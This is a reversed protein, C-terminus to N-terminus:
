SRPATGQFTLIPAVSGDNEFTVGECVVGNSAGSISSGAPVNVAGRLLATSTFRLIGTNVNLTGTAENTMPLGISFQVAGNNKHIIGHNFTNQKWSNTTSQWNNLNVIGSALNNFTGVTGFQQLNGNEMNWTGANNITGSNNLNPSGSFTTTSGPALDLTANFNGGTWNFTGGEPVHLIATGNITGGTFDVQQATIDQAIDLTSFTPVTFLDLTNISSGAETAFTGSQMQLHELGTITGGSANTFSANIRFISGPGGFAFLGTNTNTGTSNSLALEGQPVNIAGTNTLGRGTFTFAVDGNNKNITGDNITTQAWSNVPSAWGNLEVVGTSLNHFTGPDFTSSFGGDVLTWEGGNNITGNNLLPSSASSSATSGQDLDLVVDPNLQGGGTWQFSGGSKIRINGPGFFSNGSHILTGFVQIDDDPGDAITFGGTSHNLTGGSEVVVQDATLFTNATITHGARITIVGDSSSPIVAIPVFDNGDFVEWSSLANWTGSGASRLDGTTQAFTTVALLWAVAALLHGSNPTHTRHM